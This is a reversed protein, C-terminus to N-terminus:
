NSASFRLHPYRTGQTLEQDEDDDGEEESEDDEDDDEDDEDGSEDGEADGNIARELEAALDDDSEDGDHGDGEGDEDYVIPEGQISMAEADPTPAQDLNFSGPEPSNVNNNDLDFENDSLDPNVNELVEAFAFDTSM